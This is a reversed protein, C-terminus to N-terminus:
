LEFDETSALKQVDVFSLLSPCEPCAIRDWPQNAIQENLSRTHCGTCITIAHECTNTCTETPFQSDELDEACVSCERLEAKIQLATRGPQADESTSNESERRQIALM